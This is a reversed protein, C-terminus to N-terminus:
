NRRKAKDLCKIFFQGDVIRLMGSSKIENDYMDVMEDFIGKDLPQILDTFNPLFFILYIEKTKLCELLTPEIHSSANDIFNFCAKKNYITPLVVYLRPFEGTNARWL